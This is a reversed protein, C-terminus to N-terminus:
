RPDQRSGDVEQGVTDLVDPLAHLLEASVGEGATCDKPEIGIVTVPCTLLGTQIAIDFMDQLKVAHPAPIAVLADKSPLITYRSVKGPPEGSKLADVVIIKSAGEFTALLSLDVTQYSRVLIDERLHRRTFEDAVQIGIGDDRLYRNGIGIIVTKGAFSETLGFALDGEQPPNAESQPRTNANL